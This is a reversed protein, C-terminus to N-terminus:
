EITQTDEMWKHEGREESRKIWNCNACLCQYDEPSTLVKRYVGGQGLKKFEQSGGANIHDIQLARIDDFGCRSCKEGLLVIAAIRTRASNGFGDRRNLHAYKTGDLIQSTKGHRAHESRKGHGYKQTWRYIMARDVALEQSIKSLPEFNYYRKMAENVTNMNHRKPNKPRDDVINEGRLIQRVREKSLGMHNAIEAQSMIPNEKYMRIIDARKGKPGRM